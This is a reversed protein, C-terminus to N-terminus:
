GPRALLKVLTAPHAALHTRKEPYCAKPRGRLKLGAVLSLAVRCCLGLTMAAGEKRSRRADEGFTRDLVHHLRNEVGWHGRIRRAVTKAGLRGGTKPGAVLYYHWETKRAKQGKRRAVHRTRVAAIQRVEPWLERVDDPAQRLWLDRYIM